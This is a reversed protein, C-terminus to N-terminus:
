AILEAPVALDESAYRDAIAALDDGACVCVTDILRDYEAGTKGEYSARAAPRIQNEAFREEALGQRRAQDLATLPGAAAYDPGLSRGM